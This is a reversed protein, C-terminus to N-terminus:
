GRKDIDDALLLESNDYLIDETENLSKSNTLCHILIADRRNKCYLENVGSLKLIRQAEVFTAHIAFVLQLIKNRSARREGSFIQYAHTANINSDRIVDSKKLGKEQLLFALYNPLNMETFVNDDLITGLSRADIVENLFESTPKHTM